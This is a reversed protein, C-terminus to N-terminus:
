NKIVKGTFTVISVSDEYVAIYFIKKRSINRQHSFCSDGFITEKNFTQM